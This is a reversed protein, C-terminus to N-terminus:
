GLTQRCGNVPETIVLKVSIWDGVARCFCLKGRALSILVYHSNCAGDTIVHINLFEVNQGCLM